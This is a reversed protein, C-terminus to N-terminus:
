TLPVAQHRRFTSAHRLSATTCARYAAEILSLFLCAFALVSAPPAQQQQQQAAPPTAAAVLPLPLSRCRCRAAAAVLPLSSLPSSRCRLHDAAAIIPLPSSRCRRHDAAAARVAASFDAAANIPLPTSRCRRQDLTSRCRSWKRGSAFWKTNSLVGYVPFYVGPNVVVDDDLLIISYPLSM